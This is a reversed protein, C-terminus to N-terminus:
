RVGPLGPGQARSTVRGGERGSGWPRSGMDNAVKASSMKWHVAGDLIPRNELAWGIAVALAEPTSPAVREIPELDAAAPVRVPM